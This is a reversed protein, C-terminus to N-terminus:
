FNGLTWYIALYPWVPEMGLSPISCVLQRHRLNQLGFWNLFTTPPAVRKDTEKTPITWDIVHRFWRQLCKDGSGGYSPGWKILFSIASPWRAGAWRVQWSRRTLHPPRPWPGQRWNSTRWGPHTDPARVSQIDRSISKIVKCNLNIKIVTINIPLIFSDQVASTPPNLLKYLFCNWM